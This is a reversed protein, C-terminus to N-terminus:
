DIIRSVKLMCVGNELVLEPRFSRSLDGDDQFSTLARNAAAVGNTQEFSGTPVPFFWTNETPDPRNRFASTVAARHKGIEEKLELAQPTEGVYCFNLSLGSGALTNLNARHAFTDNLIAFARRVAPDTPLKGPLPLEWSNQASSTEALRMMASVIEQAESFLTKREQRAATHPCEPDLEPLEVPSLSVTIPSKARAPM